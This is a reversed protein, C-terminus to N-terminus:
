LTFSKNELFTKNKLFNRKNKLPINATLKLVQQNLQM